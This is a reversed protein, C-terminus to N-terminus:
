KDLSFLIRINERDKDKEGESLQSYPVLDPHIRKQRDKTGNPTQGYKWNNLYHYRCWRIHELEALTELLGSSINELDPGQNEQKIIEKQISHYDAASINSYRTFTDLKQWEADKNAETIEVGGYLSAYRLNIKKAAEFLSSEIINEPKQAVDKWRFNVVRSSNELLNESYQAAYFVYLKECETSLLLKRVLDPQNEQSLVVVMDMSNIFDIQEYWQKYHFIINDDIQKLQHYINCFGEAEGFIHYDIQQQPSFINNQVASLLVEKGLKGFGIFAIKLQHSHQKSLAYICHQKWFVAAATEESCFLRLNHASVAQASTQGCQAYVPKGGIEKRYKDFFALNEEEGNLLIYRHARVFSSHGDIGNAGLQELLPLKAADSGYVATSDGKIYAFCNHLGRRLFQLVMVFGSATAVPGLWRAIEIVTNPPMDESGFYYLKLSVYLSQLFPRGDIFYYGAIGLVLPSVLLIYKAASSYKNKM